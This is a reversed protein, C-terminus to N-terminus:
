SLPIHECVKTSVTVNLSAKNREICLRIFFPYHDVAEICDRPGMSIVCDPSNSPPKLVANRTPAAATPFFEHSSFDGL